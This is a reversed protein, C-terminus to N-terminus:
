TASSVRSTSVDSNDMHNRFREYQAEWSGADAPEFRDAPFSRDIVARGEALSSVAGTAVMQMVMNGLATAEAPGAIVARGTANATFQNLLRNRSGGGVIRIERFRKGTIEELSELTMRYKFALNELIARTMAAPDSPATQGSRACYEEIAAVMNEPRSFAEYDPDFFAGFAHGPDGAAALLEEYSFERGSEKWCNRCSQLLWLGGINKLLRVTGCVGGENTFNLDRARDTIVPEAVEAGLLSWTGSSLYATDPALPIAAVASGTDHCAPAIVPTGNALRGVTAGPEVLRQFLRPPLGLEQMLGTAWTRSRADILQSTSADSYESCLNGTLWYNLLDPIMVLSHAREVAEPTMRCAAFLQFLSNIRLFQIGTVAYIRERSVREFVADMIHDTRADRYHYPNEVLKGDADLLAYDVGWTDVGVGALEPLPAALAREMEAFQKAVDWRLSAGQHIPHNAFRHVEEVRLIGSELRGLIARGSEAGLDFALYNAIM